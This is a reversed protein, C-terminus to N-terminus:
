ESKVLEFKNNSKVDYEAAVEYVGIDSGCMGQELLEEIYDNLEERSDVIEAQGDEDVVVFRQERM